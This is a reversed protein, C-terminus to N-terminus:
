GHHSLGDKVHLSCISVSRAPHSRLTILTSINVQAGSADFSHDESGPQVLPDGTNAEGGRQCKISSVVTSTSVLHPDQLDRPGQNDTCARDDGESVSRQRFIDEPLDGPRSGQVGGSVHLADDQTRRVDDELGAGREDTSRQCLSRDCKIGSRDILWISRASSKAQVDLTLRRGLPFM